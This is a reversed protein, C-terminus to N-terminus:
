INILIFIILVKLNGFETPAPVERQLVSRAQNSSRTLPYTARGATGPLKASKSGPVNKHHIIYYTNNPAPSFDEGETVFSLFLFYMICRLYYM